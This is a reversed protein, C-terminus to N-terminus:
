IGVHAQKSEQRPSRLEQIACGLYAHLVVCIKKALAVEPVSAQCQQVQYLRQQTRVRCFMMPLIKIPLPSTDGPARLLSFNGDRHIQLQPRKASHRRLWCEVFAFFIKKEFIRQQTDNLPARCLFNNNKSFKKGLAPRPPARCLFFFEFIRQRTSAWFASSLSFIIQKLANGGIIQEETEKGIIVTDNLLKTTVDAAVVHM